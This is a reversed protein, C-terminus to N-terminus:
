FDPLNSPDFYEVIQRNGNSGRVGEPLRILQCKKWTASDAGLACAYEMFRRLSAEDEGHANFWGQLSKAGSWVVVVLPAYRSLHWLLAACADKVSRGRTEWKQIWPAWITERSGDRSFISFDFEIVLYLRRNFMAECRTSRHGSLAYHWTYFAPNPVLLSHRALLPDKIWSDRRRTHWVRVLLPDGFGTFRLLERSVCLLLGPSFLVELWFAPSKNERLAGPSRNNLGIVKPGAYVIEDVAEAVPSPWPKYYQGVAEGSGRKKRINEVTREIEKPQPDRGCDRVAWRLVQQQEGADLYAYTRHVASALWQHV